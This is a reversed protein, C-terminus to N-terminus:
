ASFAVPLTRREKAAREITDVIEAVRYGDEFTAAVSDTLQGSALGLMDHAQHAFCENWGLPHSGQVGGPLWFGELPHGPRTVMQTMPGQGPRRITLENLREMNWSISGKTGDIEFEGTLAHSAVVRSAEFSATAGNELRGIAIFSDDNVDTILQAPDVTWTGTLAAIEQVEGVLFRALDIHHSGLDGIAGAGSRGRDFRWSVSGDPALMNMLFRSRFHRIEGLEGSAILERAFQVAPIFRHMFACRHEVGAAAVAKWLRYAVDGSSALPKECFVPIGAQAAAITPASHLDNPGANVFLGLDESMLDNWDNHTASWGYREAIDAAAAQNVDAIAVLDARVEPQLRSFGANSFALSHMQGIFGAGLQGVRVTTKTM